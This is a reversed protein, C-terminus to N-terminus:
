LVHLCALRRQEQRRTRVRNSGRTAQPYPVTWPWSRTPPMSRTRVRNSGRTAQPYPVAPKAVQASHRGRGAERRHRLDAAAPPPARAADGGHVAGQPRRRLLGRVGASLMLAFPHAPTSGAESPLLVAKAPLSDAKAPSIKAILGICAKIAWGFGASASGRGTGCFVEWCGQM